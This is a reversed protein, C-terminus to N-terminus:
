FSIPHSKLMFRHLRHLILTFRGSEIRKQVNSDITYQRHNSNTLQIACIIHQLAIWLHDQGTPYTYSTAPGASSLSNVFIDMNTESVEMVSDLYWETNYCYAITVGPKLSDSQQFNAIKM